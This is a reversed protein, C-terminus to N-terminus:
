RNWAFTILLYDHERQLNFGYSILMLIAHVYYSDMLVEFTFRDRMVIYQYYTLPFPQFPM